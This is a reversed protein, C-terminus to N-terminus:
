KSAAAADAAAAADFLAFDVKRAGVGRSLPGAIFSALGAGSAAGVFKTAMGKRASLFYMQPQQDSDGGGSSSGADAQSAATAQALAAALSPFLRRPLLVFQVVVSRTNRSRDDSRLQAIADVRSQLAAADTDPDLVIVGVVGARQSVEPQWEPPSLELLPGARRRRERDLLAQDLALDMGAQAAASTSVFPAAGAPRGASVASGTAPSDLFATIAPLSLAGTYTHRQGKVDYVVLLPTKAGGLAKLAGRVKTVDVDAFTCRHHFKAALGRYLLSPASKDTVLIVTPVVAGTAATAVLADLDAQQTIHRIHGEHGGAVFQMAFRKIAAATQLDSFRQIRAVGGAAAAGPGGAVNPAVRAGGVSMLPTGAFEPRPTVDRPGIGFLWPVVTVGWADCLLAADPNRVDVARPVVFGGDFTHSAAEFADAVRWSNPDLSDYFFVVSAQAKDRVLDTVDDFTVVETVGSSANSSFLRSYFPASTAAADVTAATTLLVAL